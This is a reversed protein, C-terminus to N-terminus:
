RIRADNDGSMMNGQLIDYWWVESKTTVAGGRTIGFLEYLCTARTILQPSSVKTPGDCVTPFLSVTRYHYGGFM